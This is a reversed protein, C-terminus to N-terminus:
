GTERTNEKRWWEPYGRDDDEKAREKAILWKDPFKTHYSDIPYVELIEFNRESLLITSLRFLEQRAEERLACLDDNDRVPFDLTVIIIERSYPWEGAIIRSPQFLRVGVAYVFQDM